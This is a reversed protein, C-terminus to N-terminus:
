GELLLLRKCATEGISIADVALTIEEQLEKKRWATEFAAFEKSTLLFDRSASFMEVALDIFARVRRPQANRRVYYIHVGVNESMFYDRRGRKNFSMMM